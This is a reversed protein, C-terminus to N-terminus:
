RISVKRKTHVSEEPHSRGKEKAEDRLSGHTTQRGEGPRSIIRINNPQRRLKKGFPLGGDREVDDEVRRVQVPGMGRERGLSMAHQSPLLDGIRGGVEVNNMEISKSDVCRKPTHAPVGLSVTRERGPKFEAVECIAGRPDLDAARLSTLRKGRCTESVTIEERPM